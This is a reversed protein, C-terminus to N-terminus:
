GVVVVAVLPRGGSTRSFFLLIKSARTFLPPFFLLRTHTHPRRKKFLPYDLFIANESEAADLLTGQTIYFPQGSHKQLSLSLSHPLRRYMFFLQLEFFPFRM